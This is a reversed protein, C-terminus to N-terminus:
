STTINSGLAERAASSTASVVQRRRNAAEAVADNPEEGQRVAWVTRLEGYLAKRLERGCELVELPGEISVANILPLLSNAESWASDFLRQFDDDSLQADHTKTIADVVSSAKDLFAKYADRRAQRLGAARSEAREERALLVIHENQLRISRLSILAAMASGSLAAAATILAVVVTQNM